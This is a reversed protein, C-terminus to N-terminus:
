LGVGYGLWQCGSLVTIFNGLKHGAALQTNIRVNSSEAKWGKHSQLIDYKLTTNIIFPMVTHVCCCEVHPSPIDVSEVTPSWQWQTHMSWLTFSCLMATPIIKLGCLCCHLAWHPGNSCIDQHLMTHWDKIQVCQNATYFLQVLWSGSLPM